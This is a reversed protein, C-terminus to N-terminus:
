RGAQAREQAVELSVNCGSQRQVVHCVTLREFLGDGVWDPRSFAHWFNM